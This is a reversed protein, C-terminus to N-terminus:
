LQKFFDKKKEKRLVVIIFEKFSKLIIGNIFCYSATETLDKIVILVVVKFVKNPIGNLGLVKNNLFSRILKSIKEILIIFSINFARQETIIEIKINNFDM